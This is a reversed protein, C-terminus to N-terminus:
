FIHLSYGFSRHTILYKPNAPDDEIKHRLNIIYPKLNEHTYVIKEGWAGSIIQEYSMAKGANNALFTIINLENPTLRLKKGRLIVSRTSYEIRLEGTRFVSNNIDEKPSKLNKNIKNLFADIGFPKALYDNAGLNMVEVVNDITKNATIMIIPNKFTPRIQALINRGDMDPLGIDITILDPSEEKIRRLGENGTSAKISNFGEFRLIDSMRDLEYTNDEIILIKYM